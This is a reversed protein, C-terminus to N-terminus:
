HKDIEITTIGQKPMILQTIQVVVLNCNLNNKKKAWLNLPSMKNLIGGSHGLLRDENYIYPM